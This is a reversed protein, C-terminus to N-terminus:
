AADLYAQREVNSAYTPVAIVMENSMMGDKEFYTKAKKLYFAM